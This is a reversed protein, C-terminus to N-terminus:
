GIFVGTGGACRHGSKGAVAARERRRRAREEEMRDGECFGGGGAIKDGAQERAPDRHRHHGGDRGDM